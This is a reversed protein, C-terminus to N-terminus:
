REKVQELEFPRGHGPYVTGVRLRRLRGLSAKAAAMDNIFFELGPKVMGDMLDGCILGNEPTLVGISGKTHGPLHLVSGFYGYRLLSQGDELCIDPEFKDFARSRILLSLVKFRLGARDPKSKLGWNWNAQRVRGLDERHMAIKAGYKTRLYAANGAHDYDGHTLIILRLNWPRCGANELERDLLARKGPTGTDVLIFGRDAAVLYCNVGGLVIRTPEAM